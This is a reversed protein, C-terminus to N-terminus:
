SAVETLEVIAPLPRQPQHEFYRRWGIWTM